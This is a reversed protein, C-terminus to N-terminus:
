DAASLHTGKGAVIPVIEMFTSFMFVEQSTM